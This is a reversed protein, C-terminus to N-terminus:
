KDVRVKCSIGHALMNEYNCDRECVKAIELSAEKTAHQYTVAKRIQGLLTRMTPLVHNTGITKDRYSFTTEEGCFM